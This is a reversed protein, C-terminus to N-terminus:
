RYNQSAPLSFSIFYTGSGTSRLNKGKLSNWIPPGPFINNETYFIGGSYLLGWPKKKKM